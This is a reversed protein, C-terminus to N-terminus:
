HHHHHGKHKPTDAPKALFEALAQLSSNYYEDPVVIVEIEGEADTTIDNYFKTMRTANDELWDNFKMMFEEKKGFEIGNALNQLMKTVVVMQRRISPPPAQPLLGYSEPVSIATNYFRLFIFAGISSMVYTPEKAEIEQKIQRCIKRLSLPLQDASRSIQLLFKTCILKVGIANLDEDVEDNMQEPNVEYTTSVLSVSGENKEQQDEAEQLVNEFLVALTKFLYALGVMKSYFKFAKTSSSNLRFLVSADTSDSIERSILHLVLQAGAGHREFFYVMAKCVNESDTIDISSLLKDVTAWSGDEVERLLLAETDKREQDSLLSGNTKVESFQHKLLDSFSLRLKAKRRKKLIVFALATFCPVCVLPIAILGILGLNNKTDGGSESIETDCNPGQWNAWCKCGVTGNTYVLCEGHVCAVNSCPDHTTSFFAKKTTVTEWGNTVQLFWSYNTDSQLALSVSTATSLLTINQYIRWTSNTSNFIQGTDELLVLVFSNDYSTSPCVHGWTTVNGWQFLTNTKYTVNHVRVPFLLDPAIPSWDYCCLFRLYDTTSQIQDANIVRVRWYYIQDLQWDSTDFQLTDNENAKQYIVDVAESPWIDTRLSVFLSYTRSSSNICEVGWDSLSSIQLKATPEINMGEIPYNLSPYGPKSSICITFLMPTSEPSDLDGNSSALWWSFIGPTLTLAIQNSTVTKSFSYGSGTNLLCTFNVLSQLIKAGLGPYMPIPTSPAAQQCLEFSYTESFKTEETNNVSLRWSWNGPVLPLETLNYKVDNTMVSFVVTANYVFLVTSCPKTYPCTEGCSAPTWKLIVPKTFDAIENNAPEQLLPAIPSKRVCVTFSSIAWPTYVAGNFYRISWQYVVSAPPFSTSNYVTTNLDFNKSLYVLNTSTDVVSFAVFQTASLGCNDGLPPAIWRFFIDDYSVRSGFGPYTLNPATYLVDPVCYTFSTSIAASCLGLTCAALSAANVVGDSAYLLYNLQSTPLPYSGVLIGSPTMNQPSDPAEVLCVYFYREESTSNLVGNFASVRWWWMGPAFSDTLTKGTTESQNWTSDGDNRYEVIFLMLNTGNCVKGFSKFAKGWELVVDVSLSTANNAPSSLLPIDPATDNCTAPQFEVSGVALSSSYQNDVLVYWWTVGETLNVSVSGTANAGSILVSENFVVTINCLPTHICAEGCAPVEWGLDVTTVNSTYPSGVPSLIPEDPDSLICMNLTQIASVPNLMDNRVSLAWYLEPASQQIGVPTVETTTLQALAIWSESNNFTTLNHSYWLLLTPEEYYCNFGFNVSEWMLKSVGYIFNEGDLPSVLIPASEPYSTCVTFVNVTTSNQQLVTNNAMVYWSHNGVGVLVTLYKDVTSGIANGDLFVTYFGDTGPCSTGMSATRQWSFTLNFATSNLLPFLTNSSPTELAFSWPSSPTCFTFNWYSSQSTYEENSSVIYWYYTGDGLTVNHQYWPVKVHSAVRSPSGVGMYVDYWQDAPYNMNFGSQKCLFWHTATCVDATWGSTTAYVCDKTESNLNIESPKYSLSAGDLWSFTGEATIDNLGIWFPAGTFLSNTVNTAEEVSQFSALTVDLGYAQCAKIASNYSKASQVLQYCASPNSVDPWFTGFGAPCSRSPYLGWKLLPPNEPQYAGRGPSYHIPVNPYKASTIRFSFQSSINSAQAQVSTGQVIATLVATVNWTCSADSSLSLLFSTTTLGRELKSVTTDGTCTYGLDYTVTAGNCSTGTNVTSWSLTVTRSYGVWLDEPSQLVPFAPPRIICFRQVPESATIQFESCRWNAFMIVMENAECKNNVYPLTYTCQSLNKNNGCFQDIKSALNGCNGPSSQCNKSSSTWALAREVKRIVTPATCNITIKSNNPIIRRCLNGYQPLPAARWYYQSATRDNPNSASTRQYSSVTFPTLSSGWEIKFQSLLSLDPTNPQCYETWGNYTVKFTIPLYTETSGLVFRTNTVSQVYGPCSLCSTSCSSAQGSVAPTLLTGVYVAVLLLIEVLSVLVASNSRKLGPFFTGPM